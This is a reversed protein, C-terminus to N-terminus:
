YTQKRHFLETWSAVNQQQEAHKQQQQKQHVISVVDSFTRHFEAKLLAYLISHKITQQLIIFSKIPTYAKHMHTHGNFINCAYMNTHTHARLTCLLHAMCFFYGKVSDKKRLYDQNLKLHFLPSFLVGWFFCTILQQHMINLSSSRLTFELHPPPPPPLSLSLGVGKMFLMNPVDTGGQGEVGGGGGVGLWTQNKAWLALCLASPNDFIQNHCPGCSTASIVLQAAPQQSYCQKLEGLRVPAQDNNLHLLEHRKIKCVAASQASTRLSCPRSFRIPPQSRSHSSPITKISSVVCSAPIGM